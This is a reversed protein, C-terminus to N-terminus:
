FDHVFELFNSSLWNVEKTISSLIHFILTEL